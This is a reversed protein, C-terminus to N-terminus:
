ETADEASRVSAVLSQGIEWGRDFAEQNLELTAKPVRELLARKMAKRSVVRTVATFAGLMVSNAVVKKGLAEAEAAAAVKYTRCGNIARPTVLAEELLITGGLKVHTSEREFAEQSMAVLVDPHEVLPYDVGERAIVVDARSWGGRTEPGYAATLVADQGDHLAAARGIIHGSTIIGQGGLGALRIEWRTM